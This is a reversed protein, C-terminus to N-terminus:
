KTTNAAALNSHPDQLKSATLANTWAAPTAVQRLVTLNSPLCSVLNLGFSLVVALSASFM